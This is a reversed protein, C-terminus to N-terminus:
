IHFVTTLHLHVSIIHSLSYPHHSTYLYLHKNKLSTSPGQLNLTHYLAYLHLNHKNTCKPSELHLFMLPYHLIILTRSPKVHSLPIRLYSPIHLRTDVLHQYITTIMPINCNLPELVNGRVFLYM